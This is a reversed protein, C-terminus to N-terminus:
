IYSIIFRATHLINVVPTLYRKGIEIKDERDPIKELVASPNFPVIDSARSGSLINNEMNVTRDLASKLLRPFFPEPLTGKNKNKWESLVISWSSKVPKFVSVDLPQCLHTANAPLFVFNINEDM